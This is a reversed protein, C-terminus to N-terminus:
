QIQKTYDISVYYGRPPPSFFRISHLDAQEEYVMYEQGTRYIPGGGRPTAAVQVMTTGAIFRFETTVTEEIGQAPWCLREGRVHDHVDEVAKNLALAIRRAVSSARSPIAVKM